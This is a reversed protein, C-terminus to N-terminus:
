YEFSYFQLMPIEVFGALRTVHERGSKGKITHTLLVVVKYAGDQPIATPPVKVELKYERKKSPEVSDVDLHEEFLELGDKPLSADPGISEAVARLHWTGSFAPVAQGIVAWECCIYWPLKRELVRNPDRDHDRTYAVFYGKIEGKPLDINDEAYGKPYYSPKEPQYPTPEYDTPPYTTPPTPPYTTPPTPPYSPPQYEKPPYSPKPPTGPKMMEQESM